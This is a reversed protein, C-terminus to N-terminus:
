ASSCRSRNTMFEPKGPAKGYMQEEFLGFIEPRRKQRWTDADKVKAGDSCVLPDPLTYAPVKSEDYNAEQGLATGAAMGVLAIIVTAGTRRWVGRM